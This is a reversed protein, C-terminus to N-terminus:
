LSYYNKRYVGAAVLDDDKGAADWWRSSYKHSGSRERMEVVSFIGIGHSIGCLLLVLTM